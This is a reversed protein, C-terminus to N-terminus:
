CNIKSNQQEEAEIAKHSLLTDVPPVSSFGELKWICQEGVIDHISLM